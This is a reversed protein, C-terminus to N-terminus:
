EAETREAMRHLFYTWPQTDVVHKLEKMTKPTANYAHLTEFGDKDLIRMSYNWEGTWDDYHWNYLVGKMGGKAVYEITEPMDAKNM